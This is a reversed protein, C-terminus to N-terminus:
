YSGIKLMLRQFLVIWSKTKCINKERLYYNVFDGEYLFYVQDFTVKILRWGWKECSVAPRLNVFMQATSPPHNSLLNM